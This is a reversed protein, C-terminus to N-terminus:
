YGANQSLNPDVDRESQPIPYLQQYFQWYPKVPPALVSNAQGTRKLDFWRHAWEAFLEVRREQAAAALVQPQSLTQPLIPLGARTRIVNLDKIADFLNNQQARAEARILYQEALRLVMYYETVAANAAAQVPGVKYKYPIAYTNGDGTWVYSKVWSNLRHDGPEIGALFQSTLYYYPNYTSDSPILAYGEATANYNPTGLSSNVQWQLIAETSNKLFVSDLDNVLAYTGTNSIISTAQAEASDWKQQYLYARALLATAAWKNARIREGGGLSYDGPLANQANRLDAVISDYVIKSATRHALSSSRFNITTILPVDGFLNVLYFNTFARFFKAEGIMQRKAPSSIGTSNGVGDIIANTQYILQYPPDWFNGAVNSTAAQLTNTSYQDQPNAFPFLEDASSGCFLSIWGCGFGLQGGYNSMNSYLGELASNANVSDSFAETTTITTAPAPIQVLKNCASLSFLLTLFFLSIRFRIM